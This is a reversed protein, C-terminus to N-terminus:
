TEPRDYDEIGLNVALAKAFLAAGTKKEETFDREEFSGYVENLADQLDATSFHDGAMLDQMGQPCDAHFDKLFEQQRDTLEDFSAAYVEEALRDVAPTISSTSM